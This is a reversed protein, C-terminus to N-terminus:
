CTYSIRFFLLNSLLFIGYSTSQMANASITLEIAKKLVIGAGANLESTLMFKISKLTLKFSSWKKEIGLLLTLGIKVRTSQKSRLDIRVQMLARKNSRVSMIKLMSVESSNL